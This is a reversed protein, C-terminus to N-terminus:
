PGTLCFCKKLAEVFTNIINQQLGVTVETNNGLWWFYTVTRPQIPLVVATINVEKNRIVVFPALLQVHEVPGTLPVGGFLTQKNESVFSSFPLNLSCQPRPKNSRASRHSKNSLNICAPKMGCHLSRLSFSLYDLPTFAATLRLTQEATFQWRTRATERWRTQQMRHFSGVEAGTGAGSSLSFFPHICVSQSCICWSGFLDLHLSFFVESHMLFFHHISIWSCSNSNQLLCVNSCPTILSKSWNLTVLHALSGLHSRTRWTRLFLSSASATFASSSLSRTQTIKTEPKNKCGDLQSRM